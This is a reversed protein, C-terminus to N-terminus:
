ETIRSLRLEIKIKHKRSDREHSELHEYRFFDQGCVQCLYDGNMQNTSVDDTSMDSPENSSTVNGAEVMNTDVSVEQNLISSRSTRFGKLVEIPERLIQLKQSRQELALQIVKQRHADSTTRDWCRRVFLVAIASLKSSRTSHKVLVHASETGDM